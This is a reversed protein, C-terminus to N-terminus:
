TLGKGDKKIFINKVIACKCEHEGEKLLTNRNKKTGKLLYPKIIAMKM